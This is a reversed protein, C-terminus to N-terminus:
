GGTQGCVSTSVRAELKLMCKEPSGSHRARCQAEVTSMNLSTLSASCLLESTSIMCSDTVALLFPLLWGVGSQGGREGEIM